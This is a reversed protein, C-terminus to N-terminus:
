DNIQSLQQHVCLRINSKSICPILPFPAPFSFSELSSDNISTCGLACSLYHRNVHSRARTSGHNTFYTTAVHEFAQTCLKLTSVVVVTHGANWNCQMVYAENSCGEIYGTCQWDQIGDSSTTINVPDISTNCGNHEAFRRQVASVKTYWYGDWSECADENTSVTPSEGCVTVDNTGWVNIIGISYSEYFSPCNFGIQEQGHVSHNIFEFYNSKLFYIFHILIIVFENIHHLQLSDVM